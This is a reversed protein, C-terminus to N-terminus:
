SRIKKLIDAPMLDDWGLNKVISLDQYVQKAKLMYPASFGITDIQFWSNLITSVDIYLYETTISSKIM